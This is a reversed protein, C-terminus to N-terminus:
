RLQGDNATASQDAQRQSSPPEVTTTSRGMSGKAIEDRMKLAAQLEPDKGRALASAERRASEARNRRERGFTVPDMQVAFISEAKGHAVAALVVAWMAALFASVSRMGHTRWFERLSAKTARPGLLEWARRTTLKVPAYDAPTLKDFVRGYNPSRSLLIRDLLYRFGVFTAVGTGAAAGYGALQM